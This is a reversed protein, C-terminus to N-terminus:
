AKYGMRELLNEDDRWDKQVKVWLDLYVEENLLKEVDRRARRGIEKILRGNKGIIIGKHSKKEVYINARIFIKGNKREKFEEIVVAAGYPVEQRTLQFIKERVFESIIFQELCDTFMDEPYYQPGEPLLELIKDTLTDINRGTRASIPIAEQGLKRSYEKQRQVLVKNSVADIKNMVGLLPVEINQLQKKIFRDGKGPPSTADVMILVVDIGDLSEYVEQLMYKDLENKPRHVGPTDVFIMQGGEVTYITKIRNRTTQPRASTIAVKQGAFYNVFTSKGVNPRGVVSVFGSNYTM